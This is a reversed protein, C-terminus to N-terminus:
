PARSHLYMSSFTSVHLFWGSITGLWKETNSQCSTRTCHHTRSNAMMSCPSIKRHNTPWLMMRLSYMKMTQTSGFFPVFDISSCVQDHNTKFWWSKLTIKFWVWEPTCGVLLPFAITPHGPDPSIRAVFIACNNFYSEGVKWQYHETKYPVIGSKQSTCKTRFGIELKRGM